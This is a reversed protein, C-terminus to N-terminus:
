LSTGRTSSVLCVCVPQQTSHSSSSLTCHLPLSAFVPVFQLTTQRLERMKNVRKGKRKCLSSAEMAQMVMCEYLVLVKSTWFVVRYYFLVFVRFSRQFPFFLCSFTSKFGLLHAKHSSVRLFSPSGNGATPFYSLLPYPFAPRNEATSIPACPYLSVWRCVFWAGGGPYRPRVHPWVGTACCTCQGAGDSRAVSVARVGATHCAPM